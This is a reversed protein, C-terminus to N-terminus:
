PRATCGSMVNCFLCCKCGAVLQAHKLWCVAAMWVVLLHTLAHAANSSTTLCLITGNAVDEKSPRSVRPPRARPQPKDMLARQLVLDKSPEALQKVARARGPRPKPKVALAQQLADSDEVEDRGLPEQQSSTSPLQEPSIGLMQDFADPLQQQASASPLEGSARRQLQDQVPADADPPQGPSRSPLPDLNGSPLRGFSMSPLQELAAFPLEEAATAATADEAAPMVPVAFYDPPPGHGLDPEYGLDTHSDGCLQTHDVPWVSHDDILQHPLPLGVMATASGYSDIAPFGGALEAAPAVALDPVSPRRRRGPGPPPRPRPLLDLDLMWPTPVDFGEVRETSPWSFQPHHTREQAPPSVAPISAAVSSQKAHQPSPQQAQQLEAEPDAAESVAATTEAATETPRPSDAPSTSISAEAAAADLTHQKRQQARRQKKNLKQQPEEKAAASAAEEAASGTAGSSEGQDQEAVGAKNQQTRAATSIVDSQNLNWDSSSAGASGSQGDDAASAPQENSSPEGLTSPRESLPQKVHVSDKATDLMARKGKAESPAAAPKVKLKAPQARPSISVATEVARAKGKDVDLKLPPAAALAGAHLHWAQFLSSFLSQHQKM